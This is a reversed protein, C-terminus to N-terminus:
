QRKLAREIKKKSIGTLRSLQRISIGARILIKISLDLRNKDFHENKLPSLSGFEEIILEAAASDIMGRKPAENLELCSDDNKELLFLRLSSKDLLHMALETDTLGKYSSLYAKASSYKYFQPLTCIGAKVPNQLIYRLVTLFYQKTNVPESKFRDQFLHGTRDYKTNYWYVFASGISKFITDLPKSGSGILLHIHNGMLCYAYIKYHYISKYHSLLQIYSHYDEDELFIQQRNVGRMMVHYIGSISKVRALRPM